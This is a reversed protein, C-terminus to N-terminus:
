TDHPSNGKVVPKEENRQFYVPNVLNTLIWHIPIARPYDELGEENKMNEPRLGQRVWRM